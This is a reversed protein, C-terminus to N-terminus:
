CLYSNVSEVVELNRRRLCKEEMVKVFSVYVIRARKEAESYWTLQKFNGQYSALSSGLGGSHIRTAWIRNEVPKKRFFFSAHVFGTEMAVLWVALHYQQISLLFPSFCAKRLSYLRFIGFFFCKWFYKNKEIKPRVLWRLHSKSLRSKVRSLRLSTM